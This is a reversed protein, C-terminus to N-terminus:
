ILQSIGVSAVFAMVIVLFTKAVKLAQPQVYYVDCDEPQFLYMLPSGYEERLM